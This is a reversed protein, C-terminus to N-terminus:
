SGVLMLHMDANVHDRFQKRFKGMDIDRQEDINQHDQNVPVNKIQANYENPCRVNFWCRNEANGGGPDAGGNQGSEGKDGKM